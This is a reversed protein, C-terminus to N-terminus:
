GGKGANRLAAMAAELHPGEKRLREKAIDLQLNCVYTAQDIWEQFSLHFFRHIEADIYQNMREHLSGNTIPDENWHMLVLAFPHDAQPLNHNYIGYTTEYCDRLVIQADSSLM